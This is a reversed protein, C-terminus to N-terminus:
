NFKGDSITYIKDAVNNLKDSHSVIIFTIDESHSINKFTHFIEETNKQDLNGTPEDCFVIKPNNILARAISVRQQEGGSLKKISYYIRDKLGFDILLKKAREEYEKVNKGSIHVPMLVNDLVSFEPLLHHFQYIFGLNKNRFNALKKESLLSIEENLLFISGKDPLDVSSIINLLTSKGAGSEGKIGIVCPKEVDFSIGKVIEVSKKEDIEYSKYIERIDLIKNM